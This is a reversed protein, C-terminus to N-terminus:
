GDELLSEAVRPAADERGEDAEEAVEIEGLLGRLLRERDRRLAPRAVADGRVRRAPQDGGRAVARDVADAAILRESRLGAEQVRREHRLVAHVVLRGEGVLAELEDEGATM